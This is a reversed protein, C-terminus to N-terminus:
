GSCIKRLRSLARCASFRARRITRTGFLAVGKLLELCLQRLIVADIFGPQALMHGGEQADPHVALKIGVEEAVPVIARLFTAMHERLRAKDIASCCAAARSNAAMLSSSFFV